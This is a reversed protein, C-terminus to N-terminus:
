YLIKGFSLGRKIMQKEPQINKKNPSFVTKGIIEKYKIIDNGNKVVPIKEEIGEVERVQSEAIIKMQNEDNFELSFKAIEEKNEKNILESFRENPSYFVEGDAVVDENNNVAKPFPKVELANMIKEGRNHETIVTEYNEGYFQNENSRKTNNALILISNDEKLWNNETFNLSLYAPTNNPVDAVHTIDRSQEMKESSINLKLNIENDIKNNVESNELGSLQVINKLKNINNKNTFTFISEKNNNDYTNQSQYEIVNNRPTNFSLNISNEVKNSDRKSINMQNAEKEQAFDVTHEIVIEKSIHIDNLFMSEQQNKAEEMVERNGELRLCDRPSHKNDSSIDKLITKSKNTNPNINEDTKTLLQNSDIIKKDKLESTKNSETTKVQSDTKNSNIKSMTQNRNERISKLVFDTQHSPTLSKIIVSLDIIRSAEEVYSEEQSNNSNSTRNIVGVKDNNEIVYEESSIKGEQEDSSKMTSVRDTNTRTNLSFTDVKTLQVKAMFVQRFYNMNPIIFYNKYDKNLVYTETRKLTETEKRELTKTERDKENETLKVEEEQKEEKQVEIEYEIYPNKAIKKNTKILAKYKEESIIIKKVNETPLLFNLTSFRPPFFNQKIDVVYGGFKQELQEPNILNWFEKKAVGKIITIKKHTAKKLNAKILDWIMNMYKGVGVLFIKYVRCKYHETLINVFEKLGNPIDTFNLKGVECIINWNEIQGKILFNNTIFELLYIIAKTWDEFSYMKEKKLYVDINVFINPRFRHDRGFNYVFGTNLIELMNSTKILPFIINRWEIHTRLSEISTKIDFKNAQLFRLNYSNKWKEPLVIKKEKNNEDNNYNEIEKLLEDLKKKEFEIYEVGGQFIKRESEEPNKKNIEIIDEANPFYYFAQKPIANQKQVTKNM